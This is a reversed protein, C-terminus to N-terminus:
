SYYDTGRINPHSKSVVGVPEELEVRDLGAELINKIGKYSYYGFFLARRSAAEMREKGYRTELRMLGLCSRYGQEPHRRSSFIHSVLEVTFDGIRKAWKHFREPNWEAYQRHSEPMHEPHTSHRGPTDDRKHSSIRKTKYFVEVVRDTARIDVPKQILTYPVSYYHKKFEVHYDIGVKARKWEAIEFATQPLPQLVPKDLEEFMEKRSREFHQMPRTNLGELREWLAENIEDISFFQRKRLPAILWYEVTQVGKEVKAKDKPARVRTPLVVTGYHHALEQYTPNLDPEYYCPSTVGTKTNDPVLVEPMGGFYEFANIHGSIWSPLNQSPFAEAYTYNSAGWTAVFVHAKKVEGSSPETYSMTLGAFDVYLKEGAKHPVRMSPHLEKGWRRFLECFQSYGLFDPDEEKFEQWLLRRTVGKKRLEQHVLAWNPCRRKDTCKLVSSFLRRELEEDDLGEPLPWGIGAESARCLYERVTEKGISCARAIARTSLGGAHKLRLVEKIKRMSLRKRAM